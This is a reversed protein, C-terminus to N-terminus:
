GKQKALITWLFWQQFGVEWPKERRSFHLGETLCDLFRIRTPEVEFVSLHNLADMGFWSKKQQLHDCFCSRICQYFGRIWPPINRWRWNIVLVWEKKKSHLTERWCVIATNTVNVEKRGDFSFHLCFIVLSQTFTLLAVCECKWFIHTTESNWSFNEEWTKLSWIWKGRWVKKKDSSIWKWVIRNDSGLSLVDELSNMLSKSSGSSMSIANLTSVILSKLLHHFWNLGM